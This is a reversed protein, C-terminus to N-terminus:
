PKAKAVVTFTHEAILQTDYYVALSWDGPVLEEDHEFRYLIPWKMEGNIPKFFTKDEYKTRPEKEGRPVFSPHKIVTIIPVLRTGTFGTLSYLFGFVVGKEATITRTAEVMVPRVNGTDLTRFEYRGLDQSGPELPPRNVRAKTAASEDAKKTETTPGSPQAWALAGLSSAVIAVLLQLGIKM